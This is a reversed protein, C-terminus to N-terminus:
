ATTRRLMAAFEQRAQAGLQRSKELTLRSLEDMNAAVRDFVDILSSSTMDWDCVCYQRLGFQEMFDLTKQHYAIAVLPVGLTLAFIQSHTKHGVFMACESVRRIHEPELPDGELMSFAQKNGAAAIVDRLYGSDLGGREMPVMLVQWGLEVAHDLLATIDLIYRNRQEPTLRRGTYLSVGLLKRRQSPPPGPPLMDSLGFVSEPVPFIKNRDVHMAELEALSGSDRIYVSHIQGLIREMLARNDPNKFVLPGISQSWLVLPKRRQLVVGMDYTAPMVADPVHWTTVRHGGPSLVLDAKDLARSFDGSCWLRKGTHGSLMARRMRPFLVKAYFPHRLRNLARSVPMDPSLWRVINAWGQRVFRLKHGTFLSYDAYEAPIGTSVIVEDVGNRYLERLMFYLVARDGKNRAAQSIILVNM